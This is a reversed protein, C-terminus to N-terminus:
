SINASRQPGSADGHGVHLLVRAEDLDLSTVRLEPRPRPHRPGPTPHLPPVAAQHGAHGVVVVVLEASALPAPLQDHVPSDIM